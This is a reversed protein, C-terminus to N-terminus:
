DDGSTIYMVQDLLTRIDKGDAAAAEIMEKKILLADAGPLLLLLLSLLLSLLLPLLLRLPLLLAFDHLLLPGQACGHADITVVL